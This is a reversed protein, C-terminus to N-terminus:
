NEGPPKQLIMERNRLTIKGLANEIEEQVVVRDKLIEVVRGAHLGIYTGKEILYGKGSAEEVMAKSTKQMHIVAVLKMQSLEMKEIPTMPIRKKKRQTNAIIEPEERILPLFPDMKGEPNYFQVIEATRKKPTASMLLSEIDAATAVAAPKAVKSKLKQSAKEVAPLAAKIKQPEPERAKVKKKPVGPEAVAEPATKIKGTVALASKEEAPQDASPMSIKKTVVQTGQPKEAAQDCGGLILCLCLLGSVHRIGISFRYM